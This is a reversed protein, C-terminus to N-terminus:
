EPEDFCKYTQELIQPHTLRSSGDQTLGWMEIFKANYGTVHGGRDTVLIGDTTSELTAHMMALSRALESTRAELAEKARVLEEEARQRAILISKANQLAVSRLLDEESLSPNM